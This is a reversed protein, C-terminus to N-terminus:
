SDDVTDFNNTIAFVPVPNVDFTADNLTIIDPM